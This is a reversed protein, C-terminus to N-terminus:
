ATVGLRATVMGGEARGGVMVSLVQSATRV